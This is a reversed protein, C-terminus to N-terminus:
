YAFNSILLLSSFTAATSSFISVSKSNIPDVAMSSLNYSSTASVICYIFFVPILTHTKVPSLISVAIFM